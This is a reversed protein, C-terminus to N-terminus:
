LFWLFWLAVVRFFDRIKDSLKSCLFCYPPYQEGKRKITLSADYILLVHIHLYVPNSTLVPIIQNRPIRSTATHKRQNVQLLLLLPQLRITPAQATTTTARSINSHQTPIIRLKRHHRRLPSGRNFVLWVLDAAMITIWM